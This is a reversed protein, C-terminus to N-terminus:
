ALTAFSPAEEFLHFVLEGGHVLITGVFRGLGDAPHGTGRWHFRRPEMPMERDVRAWVCADDHQLQVSLVEAGIPMPITVTDNVPIPFKWVTTTAM